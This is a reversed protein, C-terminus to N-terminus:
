FFTYVSALGASHNATLLCDRGPVDAHYDVAINAPGAGWDLVQRVMRGDEWYLAFLERSLSRCGGLFVTRGGLLGGWVVHIFEMPNPCHYVERYVGDYKKYVCYANGHFPLIAAMEDEGDYDIDCFAIDSVSQDFIRTIKWEREPGSPPHVSFVGEDCSTFVETCVCPDKRSFGPSRWYGHNRTMGCAIVVTNEPPAFNNGLPAAMLCGPKSWDAREEGTASLICGLFYYRGGSSLIDFRHVYPLEMWLSIHWHRNRGPVARMIRAGRASFGPLFNQSILFEGEMGPIPVISMTGGSEDWITIVEHTAADVARCAGGRSDSAFIYYRRGWATVPCVAYCDPIEALDERAFRLKMEM